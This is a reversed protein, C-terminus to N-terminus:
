IEESGDFLSTQAVSAKNKKSENPTADAEEPEEDQLPLAAVKLSYDDKGWECRDLVVRPIKKLTLNMLNDGAAEYAMCCVLLSREDGVEDSLAKLQDFTLSSTTVYIFANETAKGHMWYHETSPAYTYNFHKCMAEALMEPQYDKNIVLNGWKDKQLLSPALKLFRYGGGGKWSVANTIGTNDQGDVVRKLRPQIHTIAQEGLEVVIWRRKMKHAVAPTSGSGGFSDLVLDGESTALELCRKILAEPKKGNPFSVGGEAHLNNSLLDEWLNTLPAATTIKGDILKTKASYFILQEGNIFYYPDKGERKSCFVRDPVANSQALADRADENVDKPAVRATRVVRFASQLVFEELKNEIKDTFKKKAESWNPVGKERCFEDKLNELQWESFPSDYNKIIKSYRDDRGIATYVRGPSWNERSKSYYLIYNNTTVVGKNGAKPGSVSSQKFTIISIRNRRGFIEDLVPIIYGLENDDIHVFMSGDESLLRHLIICRERMLSLWLSHEIGDDYNQFAQQTNFPPDIYICKVQGRVNPDTELAKLALLNDGQILINDFHDGVRRTEAHYSFEPEEILIRPELRPRDDKGIWTLELKTKGAM